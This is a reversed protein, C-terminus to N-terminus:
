AAAPPADADDGPLPTDPDTELAALAFAWPATAARDAAFDPDRIAFWHQGAAPLRTLGLFDFVASLGAVRRQAADYDALLKAVAPSPAVIAAIASTLARAAGALDREAAGEQDRLADRTREALDLAANAEALGATAAEVTPAGDDAEGILRAVLLRPAAAKAEALAAEATEVAQRAASTTQWITAGASHIREFREAAVKHREIAEALRTRETSRAAPAAPRFPQVKAAM